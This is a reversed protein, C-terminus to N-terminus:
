MMKSELNIHINECKVFSIRFQNNSPLKKLSNYSSRRLLRRFDRM